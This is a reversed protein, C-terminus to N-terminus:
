KEEDVKGARKVAFVTNLLVRAVPVPKDTPKGAVRVLIKDKTPTKAPDDDDIAIGDHEKPESDIADIDKM